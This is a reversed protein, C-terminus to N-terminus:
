ASGSLLSQNLVLSATFVKDNVQCDFQSQTELLEILRKIFALGKHTGALRSSASPQCHNTVCFAYNGSETRQWHIRISEQGDWYKLANLILESTIAFLLSFRTQSAGFYVDDTEDIVVEIKPTHQDVWALFVNESNEDLNLPLVNDIFSKRTTKITAIEQTDLLVRLQTTDSMFLIRNLGQRLAATIVWKPTADGTTDSDWANKFEQPDTISQKFTDILSDTLSLSSFLATMKNIAKYHNSDKEYIESGLLQIAQRLAEPATALANRMTHTFFSLMEREKEEVVKINEIKQKSLDKQLSLKEKYSIEARRNLNDATEADIIGEKKLRSIEIELSSEEMPQDKGKTLFLSREFYDHALEPNKEVGIGHDYCKTLALHAEASGYNVALRLYHTAMKQKAIDHGNDAAREMWYWYKDDDSGYELAVLYQAADINLLAAKEYWSFALKIDKEVGKGNAYIHGMLYFAYGNNLKIAKTLWILTEKYDIEVGVGKIYILAILVMADSLGYAAAQKFLELALAYNQEIGFGHYYCYGSWLMGDPNNREAAKTLWKVALHDDNTEFLKAIVLSVALKLSTNERNSKYREYLLKRETKFLFYLGLTLQANSHGQNAAKELWALSRKGDDIIPDAYENEIFAMEYQANADGAEARERFANLNIEHTAAM